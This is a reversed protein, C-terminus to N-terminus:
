LRLLGRQYLYYGNGTTSYAIIAFKQLADCLSENKEIKNLFEKTTAVLKDFLENPIEIIKEEQALRLKINNHTYNLIIHAFVLEPDYELNFIRSIAGYIGSFYYIKQKYEKEKEMKNIIFKLEEILKKRTDANIKM